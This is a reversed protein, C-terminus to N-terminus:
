QQTRNLEVYSVYNGVLNGLFLLKRTNGRDDTVEAESVASITSVTEGTPDTLIEVLQGNDDVQM